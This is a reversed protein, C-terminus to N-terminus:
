DPISYAVDLTAKILCPLSAIAFALPLFALDPLFDALLLAFFVALFVTFFDALVLIALFGAFVALPAALFDVPLEM